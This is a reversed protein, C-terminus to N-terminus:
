FYSMDRAIELLRILHLLGKESSLFYERKFNPLSMDLHDMLMELHEDKKLSEIPQDTLRHLFPRLEHHLMFAVHKDTIITRAIPEIAQRDRSTLSSLFEHMRRETFIRRRQRMNMEVRDRITVFLAMIGALIALSGLGYVAVRIFQVVIDGSFAIMKKSPAIAHPAIEIVPINPINAIKGSITLTPKENEDHLTLLQLSIFQGPEMIFPPFQISQNNKTTDAFVKNLYPESADLIDSKVIEGKAKLSLSLLDKQDFDGPRIPVNGRNILKLNILTLAKHSQRINQGKFMIDLDQVNERLSFVPASSQIEAKLDPAKAYFFVTYIGFVGFIVGTLFGLFSWPFKRDISDGM